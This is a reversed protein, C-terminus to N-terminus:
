AEPEPARLSAAALLCLAPIAVVHYRDEGFFMAHTLAVTAVLSTCLLLAPPASPRGELPLWPVVCAILVIPWFTPTSLAFACVAGIIAICALLATQVRRRRRVRVLAVCGLSSAAVLV